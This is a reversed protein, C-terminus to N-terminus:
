NDERIFEQQIFVDAPGVERLIQVANKVSFKSVTSGTQTLIVM